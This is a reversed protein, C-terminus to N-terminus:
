PQEVAGRPCVTAPRSRLELTESLFRNCGQDLSCALHLCWFEQVCKSGAYIADDHLVLIFAAPLFQAVPEPAEIDEKSDRLRTEKRFKLHALSAFNSVILFSRM